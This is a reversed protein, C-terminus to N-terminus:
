IDGVPQDNSGKEAPAQPPEDSEPLVIMGVQVIQGQLNVGRVRFEVQGYRVSAGIEAQKGELRKAIAEALSCEPPADMKIGYIDELAGVTASGRLPFEFESPLDERVSNGSAFVQDVLPRTGPSLVLVMHDGAEIRTDGHPPIIKHERAILAVVVGEPLSLDRIRRGAVRSQASVSYDVIDGDVHRLSSIELTVPSSPEPPVDLKLWRAVLPLSWGQVTASVVVVFFVINFIIPAAEVGMMLPFTALTIPVSGKLGVWSLFVLERFNFWRFPILLLFVALPRAIFTLVLAILLGQWAVGILRSPFSLLGLVIFMMIQALWAGADHFLRIGRQFVLRSNGIVIGALYVALFGSGGLWVTLGYTVMACGTVLVPYLGASDLNIRNVVKVSLFGMLLGMVTGVISQSVLMGVLGIGLPTQNTLVQLCGVTLFIAMPDNSASEIELTSSIRKSLSVGGSRLVAFVAAADTSGVISGLLFGELPKLGLIWTAFLGTVGATVLVGLTALALSPKWTLRISEMPTSLGGDFLILALALSGIAHALRYDEFAIGGLGESGALMGVMLFLVLVPVGLRASLKSSAIGALLFVGAILMLTDVLFM